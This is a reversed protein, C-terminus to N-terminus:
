ETCFKKDELKKGLLLVILVCLFIIKVTTKYQHLAQHSVSLFSRQNLTDSFLTNLLINPGLRFSTVSPHFLSCLSSSFSRYQEGFM